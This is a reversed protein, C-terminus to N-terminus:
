RPRITVNFAKLGLRDGVRVRHPDTNTGRFLQVVLAYEGPPADARLRARLVTNLGAQWVDGPLPVRFIQRETEAGALLRHAAQPYGRAADREVINLFAVAMASPEGGVFRITLPIVIEDGPYYHAALDARVELQQAWALSVIALGTLAWRLALSPATM